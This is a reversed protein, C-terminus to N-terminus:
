LTRRHAGFDRLDRRDSTAGATPITSANPGGRRRRGARAARGPRRPTLDRDALLGPVGGPGPDPPRHDVGMTELKLRAIEADIARPVNYVKPELTKANKMVWEAALAQNAFSM